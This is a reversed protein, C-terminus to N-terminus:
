LHGSQKVLVINSAPRPGVAIKTIVKQSVVNMLLVYAQFSDGLPAGPDTAIFAILDTGQVMQARDSGWLGTTRQVDIEVLREGSDRDYLDIRHTGSEHPVNVLPGEIRGWPPHLGRNAVLEKREWPGGSTARISVSGNWEKLIKNGDGDEGTRKGAVRIDAIHKGDPSFEDWPMVAGEPGTVVVVKALGKGAPWDLTFAPGEYPESMFAFLRRGDPSLAHAYVTDVWDYPQEPDYPPANFRHVGIVEFNRKVDIAILPDFDLVKGMLASVYVIGDAYAITKDSGGMGVIPASMRLLKGETLDLEYIRRDDCVVYGIWTDHSMRPLVLTAGLVIVSTVAVLFWRRRMIFSAM